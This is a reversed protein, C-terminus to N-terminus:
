SATPVNAPEGHPDSLGCLGDSGINLGINTLNYIHESAVLWVIDCIERESYHRKLCAFTEPMVKKDRTLETAYDLAVREAETFLTSTRYDALADFRTVDGLQRMAYYRAADMCFLCANISAVRERIIAATRRSLRLKKDLQGVKGYFSGFAAPMRAAFVTLPTMVKGFQRRVFFFVIKLILGPPHEIPTLFPAGEEARQTDVREMDVRPLGKTMPTETSKAVHGDLCVACGNIQSTRIHVLARTKEPIPSAALSKGLAVMPGWADNLITQLNKIRPEM